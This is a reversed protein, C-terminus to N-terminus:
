FTFNNPIHYIPGTVPTPNIIYDVTVTGTFDYTNFKGAGPTPTNRAIYDSKQSIQSVLGLYGGTSNNFNAVLVDSANTITFTYKTRKSNLITMAGTSVTTSGTPVALKVTTPNNSFSANLSIPQVGATGADADIEVGADDINIVRQSVAFAYHRLTNPVNTETFDITLNEALADGCISFNHGLDAGATLDIWTNNASGGTIEATPAGTVYVTKTTGADFCSVLTNKEVVSVTFPGGSSASADIEVYNSNTGVGSALVESAPSGTGIGAPYNWVWRSTTGLAGAGAAYSPNYVPDPDAYLRFTTGVTQYTFDAQQRYDTEITIPRLRISVNGAAWTFVARQSSAGNYVAYTGAVLNVTIVNGLVSQGAVPTEAGAAITSVTPAAAATGDNNYVTITVQAFASTLMLFFAFVFAMKLLTSKRM